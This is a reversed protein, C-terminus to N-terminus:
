GASWKSYTVALRSPCSTNACRVPGSMVPFRQCLANTALVSESTRHIPVAPVFPRLYLRLHLPPMSLTATCIFVYLVRRARAREEELEEETIAAGAEVESAKSNAQKLDRKMQDLKEKLTGIEKNKQQAQTHCIHNFPIKLTSRVGTNICAPTQLIPPAVCNANPLLLVFSTPVGAQVKPLM